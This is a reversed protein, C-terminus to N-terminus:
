DKSRMLKITENAVLDSAEIVSKEMHIYRSTISSQKHGLLRAITSDALGLDAALSALSHRLVHPSVDLPMKLKLWIPRLNGRGCDFVYPSGNQKQRQIIEAAAGSLPRVSVGTKTDGLTAVSRALDCESWRLNKAESSRWGTVALLMFIDSIDSGNIAAGLQVYETESLRRNRQVDAPKEIGRVPNDPRLKRKVAYSFIVGLLGIARAQNGPSLSRMFDEIQDSTISAVRYHGLRPKIHLKIRSNDSKITGLKKGNDRASYQDCLEAVTMSTRLAMKDGAPDHGLAKARLIKIAEQRALNPTLIPFRELKQWRQVNEKTRYVVSFTIIDSHQRRAVFGRVELDWLITNPQMAAIERLGIRLKYSTAMEAASRAKQYSAICDSKASSL